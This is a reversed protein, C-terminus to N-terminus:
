PSQPTANSYLTFGLSFTKSKLMNIQHTSQHLLHTKREVSCNSAFHQRRVVM